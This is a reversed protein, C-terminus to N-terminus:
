PQSRELSAMEDTYEFDTADAHEALWSEVTSANTFTSLFSIGVNRASFLARVTGGLRMDANMIIECTRSNKNWESLESRMTWDTGRMEILLLLPVIWYGTKMGSNVLVLRGGREAFTVFNLAVAVRQRLTLVLNQPDHNELKSVDEECGTCHRTNYDARLEGAKAGQSSSEAHAAHTPLDGAGVFLVALKGMMEDDILPVSSYTRPPNNTSDFNTAYERDYTAQQEEDISAQIADGDMLTAQAISRSMINDSIFTQLQELDNKFLQAAFEVDPEEGFAHKGRLLGEADELQLRLILDLSANDIPYAM